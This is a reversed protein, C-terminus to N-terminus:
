CALNLQDVSWCGSDVTRKAYVSFDTATRGLVEKIGNQVQSNRGDLVETFLERLLWQIQKPIGQEKLANIYADVPVQTYKVPRELVKSVENMCDSFSMARPGTLEYVRNRHQQKTLTATVVEVIDEADVFPELTDGAPLVLEGSLIGDLMFSESFNQFFWSARVINWNLGSSQVIEEAKQAGIEGRGSLLVIHELGTQKALTIFAKIDAAAQPIALDPQYTVYASAVGNLAASWTKRDEWDFPLDASRSVARTKLGMAMLRQNVRHGTKGHKGIILIPKNAM